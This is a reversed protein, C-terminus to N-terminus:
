RFLVKKGNILYIGKAAKAVKQGMTNYIEVSKNEDSKVIEIANGPNYYVGNEDRLIVKVDKKSLKWPDIEKVKLRYDGDPLPDYNIQGGARATRKADLGTNIM